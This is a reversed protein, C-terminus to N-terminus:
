HAVGSDYQRLPTLLQEEGLTLGRIGDEVNLFALDFDRNDRRLALLCDDREKCGPIEDAFTTKALAKVSQVSVRTSLGVITRISRSSGFKESSNM